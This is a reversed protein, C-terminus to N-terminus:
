KKKAQRVFFTYVQSFTTYITYYHTYIARPPRM